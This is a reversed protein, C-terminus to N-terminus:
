DFLKRPALESLKATEEAILDLLTQRKTENSEKALMKRYRSINLRSIITDFTGESAGWPSKTLGSRNPCGSRGCLQTVLGAFLPV